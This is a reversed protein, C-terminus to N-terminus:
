FGLEIGLFFFKQLPWHLLICVTMELFQKPISFGLDMTVILQTIKKEDVSFSLACTEQINQTSEHTHIGM